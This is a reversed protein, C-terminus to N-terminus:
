KKGKRRAASLGILGTGFLMMTAPEPVPTANFDLLAFDNKMPTDAFFTISDVWENITLTLYGQASLDVVYEDIITMDFKLETAVFGVESTTDGNLYYYGSESYYFNNPTGDGNWDNAWWDPNSEIFIDVLNFDSVYLKESFSITLSEGNHGTIEDVQEDTSEVGLGDDSNDIGMTGGTAALTMNIGPYIGATFNTQGALGAKYDAFKVSFGYATGGLTLLLFVTATIITKKM